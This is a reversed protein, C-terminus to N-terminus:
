DVFPYDTYGRPGGVYFTDPDPVNLAIGEQWRRVLDPNAIFERGVAVADAHESEVIDVAETYETYSGFGSNLIVFGGFTEALQRVFDSHYDAHLISLYALGLGRIEDLLVQYTALTEERDTELVGQINHEPSIRLGVRHAGIEEAVAQVVQIVFRARNEPTGGFEDTRVNSSPSLFEHLLYGNAGHLEVGDLGADVARRSAAAFEQKVRELEATELAHPVPLDVKGVPTRMQTGSALASPAEPSVGGNMSEHSMRGAHMVQMVVSGGAAHVAEAVKRWGEQQASDTIGPQGSFGRGRLTPYTGETVILGASARQAYYEAHLAGPVGDEGARLRTLAAMTIRNRLNLAGAQASTFLSTMAIM